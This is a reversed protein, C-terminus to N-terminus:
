SALGWQVARKAFRQLHIKSNSKLSHGSRLESLIITNKKRGQTMETNSYWSRRLLTVYHLLNTDIEFNTKLFLHKQVLTKEKREFLLAIICSNLYWRYQHVKLTVMLKEILKNLHWHQWMQWSLARTGIKKEWDKREPTYVRKRSHQHWRWFTKTLTTAM